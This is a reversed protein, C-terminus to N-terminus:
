LGVEVPCGGRRLSSQAAEILRVVTIGLDGGSIPDEEGRVVRAFHRIEYELAEMKDVKPSLVDGNRYEVMSRYIDENTEVVHAGSDYVRLKDSMEMDNFVMMKKSGGVITQRVKAPALWNVHIHALFGDDFQLTVYAMNEMAQGLHRAGIAAVSRVPRDVLFALISLDHPALDWIVNADRQFIGLNIRTSDFYYLEGLEGSDIYQKMKRVAGTFLFTHDVLIRRDVKRAIDMLTVADRLRTALPKTVLVHKGAELARSALAFHTAAPTAIAVADITPDSIITEFDTTLRAIPHARRANLLRNTDLEAIAVLETAPCNAINRALNPGWYGYGLVGMRVVNAEREASVQPISLPSHPPM